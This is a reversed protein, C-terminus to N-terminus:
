IDTVDLRVFVLDIDYQGAVMMMTNCVIQSEILSDTYSILQFILVTLSFQKNPLKSMEESFNKLDIMSGNLWHTSHIIM